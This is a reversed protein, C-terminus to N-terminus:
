RKPLELRSVVVYTGKPGNEILPYEGVGFGYGDRHVCLQVRVTAKRTPSSSACWHLLLNENLEGLPGTRGVLVPMGGEDWAGVIEAEVEADPVPNGHRDVATVQIDFSGLYFGLRGEPKQTSSSAGIQLLAGILLVGGLM